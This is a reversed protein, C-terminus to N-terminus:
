QVLDAEDLPRTGALVAEALERSDRLVARAYSLYAAGGSDEPISSQRGGKKYRTPEPYLMATAM